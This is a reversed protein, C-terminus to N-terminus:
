EIMCERPEIKINVEVNSVLSNIDYEEDGPECKISDVPLLPPLRRSIMESWRNKIKESIHQSTNLSTQPELIATKNLQENELINARDKDNQTEINCRREFKYREKKRIGPILTNYKEHFNKMHKYYNAPDIYICSCADCRLCDEM